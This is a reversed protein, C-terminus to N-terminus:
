VLQHQYPAYVQEYGFPKGRHATHLERAARHHSTIDNLGLVPWSWAGLLYNQYRDGRRRKGM